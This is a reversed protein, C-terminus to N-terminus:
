GHKVGRAADIQAERQAYVGETQAAQATPNRPTTDVHTEEDLTAMLNIIDKRVTALPIGHAIAHAVATEGDIGAVNPACMDVISRMDRAEKLSADFQVTTAGNLILRQAAPGAFGAAYVARARTAADTAGHAGGIEFDPNLQPM